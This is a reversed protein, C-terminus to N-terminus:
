AADLRDAWRRLRRALRSAMVSWFLQMPRLEAAKFDDRPLATAPAAATQVGEAPPTATAPAAPEAADQAAAAVANLRTQLNGAFMRTLRAAVDNVIGSRGFQALAGSLGIEAVIEVAAAGGEEPRVTYVMHAKARSNSRGDIGTWEITGTQAAADRDVVADGAFAASLPGLKVRMRGTYSRGDPSAEDLEAGPLCQVAFPADALADWVRRPTHQVIFRQKIEM